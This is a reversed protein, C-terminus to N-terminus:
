LRTRGRTVAFGVQSSLRAAARKETECESVIRLAARRWATAQRTTLQKDDDLPRQRYRHDEHRVLGDPLPLHAARFERAIIDLVQQETM